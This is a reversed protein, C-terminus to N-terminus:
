KRFKKGAAETSARSKQRAKFRQFDRESSQLARSVSVDGTKDTAANDNDLTTAAEVAADIQARRSRLEKEAKGTLGGKFTQEAM